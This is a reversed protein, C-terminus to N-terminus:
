RRTRVPCEMPFTVLDDSVPKDARLMEIEMTCLPCGYANSSTCRSAVEFEHMASTMRRGGVSGATAAVGAGDNGHLRKPFLSRLEDREALTRVEDPPLDFQRALSRIAASTDPYSPVDCPSVDVLQVELLERQPYNQASTSWADAKCVFGFSSQDVDRRRVLELLDDGSPSRPLEVEYFLGQRDVRLKLTGSRAAGILTRHNYRAVVGPWGQSQSRNFAKPNVFEVFGGLNRSLKGFVAAYGAVKRSPPSGSGSRPEASVAADQHWRLEVAAPPTVSRGM